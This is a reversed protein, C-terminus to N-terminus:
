IFSSSSNLFTESICLVDYKYVANYAQLLSIKIYNHAAIGNLNWHCFSLALNSPINPGSNSEIDGCLILLYKQSFQAM